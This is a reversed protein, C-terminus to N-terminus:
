RTIVASPVSRGPITLAMVRWTLLQPHLISSLRRAMSPSSNVKMMSSEPLQFAMVRISDVRGCFPASSSSSITIFRVLECSLGGIGAVTHTCTSTFSEGCMMSRKVSKNSELWIFM